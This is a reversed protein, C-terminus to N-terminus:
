FSKSIMKDLIKNVEEDSIGKNRRWEKLLDMLKSDMENFFTAIEELERIMALQGDESMFQTAHDWFYHHALWNRQDLVRLLESEFEEDILQTKQMEKLLSGLTKKFNSDLKSDFEERTIRMLDLNFVTALAMSITRELCQSFYMALGFHAYVEKIRDSEIDLHNV